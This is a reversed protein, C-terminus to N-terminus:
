RKWYSPNRVLDENSVKEMTEIAKSLSRLDKDTFDVGKKNNIARNMIDKLNEIAEKNKM